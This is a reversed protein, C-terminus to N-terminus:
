EEGRLRRLVPHDVSDVFSNRFALRMIEAFSLDPWEPEGWSKTASAIHPEYAGLHRNSVCRTWENTAISLAIETASRNWSDIKGDEGPMRVPWLFPVNGPRSIATFFVKFHFTSEGLLESWLSKDVLYIEGDEKLEIVATEFRYAPDPHVRVFWEKSPKRVPVTLLQKKLGVAEIHEQSVRLEEINSFPDPSETKAAHIVGPCDQATGNDSNIKSM